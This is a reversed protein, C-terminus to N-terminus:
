KSICKDVNYSENVKESVKEYLPILFFTIFITHFVRVPNLLMLSWFVILYTRCKIKNWFSNIAIFYISLYSGGVFVGWQALSDIIESHAGLRDNVFLSGSFLQGVLPKEQILEISNFYVIGRLYFAGDKVIGKGQLLNIMEVIRWAYPAQIQVFVSYVMNLIVDIVGLLYMLIFVTAFTVILKGMSWHLKDVIKRIFVFAIGIIMALTTITSDTLIVVVICLGCIMLTFFNKNRYLIREFLYVALIACGYALYYGGGIAIDGYYNPNVALNRAANENYIYFVIAKICYYIWTDLGIKLIFRRKNNDFYYDIYQFLIIPTFCTMLVVLYKMNLIINTNTFVILSSMIGFFFLILGIVLLYNKPWAKHQKIVIMLLVLITGGLVFYSYYDFTSKRITYVIFVTYIISFVCEYRSLRIQEKM